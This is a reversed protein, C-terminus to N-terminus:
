PSRVLGDSLLAVLAKGNQFLVIGILKGDDLSLVSAGHWDESIPMSPDISWWTDHKDLQGASVPLHTEHQGAILLCDEPAEPARIRTLPWQRAPEIPSDELGFTALTGDVTSSQDEVSLRKGAVELTTQRDTAGTEPTLLNAPGLLRRDTLCLVWGQRENQRRLGLRRSTWTLTVRLPQPLSLGDPLLSSGIPIRPRWALWEDDPHEYVVFRHGTSVPSGPADPTALSVGGAAITELTDADLQFGSLGFRVDFGSTSWFRSNDRILRRYVPRVYARAEVAIADVSLGVSLVHGVTLGRYTVPAGRRIGRRHPGELVIELGGEERQASAPAYELGEFSTAPEADAPGPVLAIYRGGVLTELGRVGTLSVNAREVWFQTGARALKKASHVLRVGVTVRDLSEDLQVVTVEGVVTGRYKVVDGVDLGHGEWFRISVSVDDSQLLALPSEVGDFRSTTPAEAPGPLVGVYKAGVVTELGTVRSLSIRPREIWFRSGERALGRAAPHLAIGVDVGDWQHSLQVTVVVGVDIGRHRLADGPKIGHGHQFHVTIQPGRSRISTVILGLALVLSAVALWWFRTSRLALRPSLRAKAPRLDAVPFEEGSPSQEGQNENSM